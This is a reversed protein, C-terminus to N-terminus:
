LKLVIFNSAPLTKDLKGKFIYSSLWENAMQESAAPCQNQHNAHILVSSCLNKLWHLDMLARALGHESFHNLLYCPHPLFEIQHVAIKDSYNVRIFASEFPHISIRWRHGDM